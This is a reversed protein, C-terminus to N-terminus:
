FLRRGSNGELLEWVLYSRVVLSPRYPHNTTLARSGDSRASGSGTPRESEKERLRFALGLRSRRAAQCYGQRALLSREFFSRPHVLQRWQSQDQAIPQLTRLTDTNGFWQSRSHAIVQRSPQTYFEHSHECVRSPVRQQLLYQQRFYAETMAIEAWHTRPAVVRRQPLQIYNHATNVCFYNELQADHRLLHGLYAIRASQINQSPPQLKPMHEYALKLLYENCCQEDTPSLDRHYFSSKIAFIKRLAKYHITNLRQLQAKAYTQSESGHLLIALTIQAHVLLKRKYSIQTHRYFGDLSKLCRM